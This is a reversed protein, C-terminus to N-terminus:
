REPEVPAYRGNWLRVSRGSVSLVTVPCRDSTNLLAVFYRGDVTRFRFARVGDRRVRGLYQVMDDRHHDIAWFIARALVVPCEAVGVRERVRQCWHATIRVQALHADSARGADAM